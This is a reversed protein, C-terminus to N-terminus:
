HCILGALEAELAARRAAEDLRLAGGEWELLADGEALTEDAELHLHLNRRDAAQRAAIAEAVPAALAPAVRVVIESGRAVERLVQGIARDIAGAPEAAIARAALVEGCALALAAAEASLEALEAARREGEAELSAHLADVAALVAAQQEGRAADRGAAFAAAEGVAQAARLAALEARLASADLAADEAALPEAAFSRAFAFPEIRM